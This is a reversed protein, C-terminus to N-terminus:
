MIQKVSCITQILTLLAIGAGTVTATGRWLDKFYVSKLTAKTHNWPNNYHAKLEMSTKYYCSRSRHIQLSLKNFLNVVSINDGLRNRIIGKGVLLDVDKESNILYDMLRVYNCVRTNSPYHCQELAKINRLLRETGYDAVVLHPIQLEHVEFYSILRKRKKFRIDLLSTRAIGKFKVGSEHLKVACPLDSIFGQELEKRRPFNKFLTSRRLDTFHKVVMETPLTNSLCLFKHSLDRFTPTEFALNYLEELVFFPLQNELLQLDMKLSFRTTPIKLLFNDSRDNHYSRLFLELIFIADHQIMTIFADSEMKIVEAYCTRIRQENNEIFSLLEDCKEVTIRKLFSEMYKIKQREMFALEEKGHHLPGISVFRPTYAEENIRRISKPVRCIYCQLTPEPDSLNEEIIDILLDKSQDEDKCAATSSMKLGM